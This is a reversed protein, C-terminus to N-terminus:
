FGISSMKKNKIKQYEKMDIEIKSLNKLIIEETTNVLPFKVAMMIDEMEKQMIEKELSKFVAIGVRFIGIEANGIIQDWIKTATVYPFNGAFLTAVSDFIYTLYQYGKEKLYKQLKPANIALLEDLVEAYGALIKADVHFCASIIPISLLYAMINFAHINTCNLLLTGAYFNMGQTYGFDPRWYSIVYLLERLRKWNTTNLAFEKTEILTRNLDKAIYEAQKQM